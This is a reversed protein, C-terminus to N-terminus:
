GILLPKPRRFVRKKKRKKKRTTTTTTTGIGATDV